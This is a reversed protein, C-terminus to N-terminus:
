KNEEQELTEITKTYREVIKGKNEEITSKGEIYDNFLEMCEKTPEKAGLSNIALAEEVKRRRLDTM